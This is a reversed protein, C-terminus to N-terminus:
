ATTVRGFERGIEVVTSRKAKIIFWIVSIEFPYESIEKDTFTQFSRGKSVLWDVIQVEM